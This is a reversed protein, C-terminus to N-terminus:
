IQRKQDASLDMALIQQKMRELMVAPREPHPREADPRRQAKEAKRAAAPAARAPFAFLVPASSVPWSFRQFEARLPCSRPEKRFTEEQGVGSPLPYQWRPM